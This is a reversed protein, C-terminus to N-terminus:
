HSRPCCSVSIEEEEISGSLGSIEACSVPKRVRRVASFGDHAVAHASAVAVGFSAFRQGDTVRAAFRPLNGAANVYMSVRIQPRFVWNKRGPTRSGVMGLSHSPRAEPM